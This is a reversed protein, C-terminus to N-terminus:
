DLSTAPNTSFKNRDYAELLHFFERNQSWIALDFFLHFFSSQPNFSLNKYYNDLTSDNLTFDPYGVLDTMYDVKEIARNRTVDDMWDLEYIIAKFAEKLNVIMDHAEQKDKASFYKRIYLAGSAMEVEKAVDVCVKWRNPIAKRGVFVTKFKQDADWFRQDLLLTRRRILRWLIYNFQTRSDVSLSSQLSEIASILYTIELQM